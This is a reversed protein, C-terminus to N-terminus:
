DQSSLVEKSLPGFYWGRSVCAPHFTVGLAKRAPLISDPREDSSISNGCFGGSM